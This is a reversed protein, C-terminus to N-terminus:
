RTSSARRFKPPAGEDHKYAQQSSREFLRRFDEKTSISTNPVMPRVREYELPLSRSRKFTNAGLTKQTMEMHM